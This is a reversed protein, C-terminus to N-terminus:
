SLTLRYKGNALVFLHDDASQVGIIDARVIAHRFAMFVLFNDILELVAHVAFLYLVVRAEGQYVAFGTMPRATEGDGLNAIVDCGVVGPLHLTIRARKEIYHVKGGLGLRENAQFTMGGSGNRGQGVPVCAGVSKVVDTAEVTVFEVLARLLFHAAFLHSFEAVAAMRLHLCFVIQEGVMRNSLLLHCADVTVIRVAGSLILEQPTIAGLFGAGATVHLFLSRKGEFMPVNRFITGVAMRGVARDIAMEEIRGHRKETKLAMSTMEDRGCRPDILEEGVATGIAVGLDMASIYGGRCLGAAAGHPLSRPM